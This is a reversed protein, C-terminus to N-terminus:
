KLLSIIAIIMVGILIINLAIPSLSLAFVVGLIAGLAGATAAAVATKQHYNGSRIMAYGGTLPSVSGLVLSMTLTSLPSLGLMLFIATWTAKMPIGFMNLVGTFFLIVVAIVLKSTPLTTADSMAGRSVIMRVILAVMSFMLAVAMIKRIKDGKVKKVLRVGLLSGIMASLGCFVLVTWHVVGEARLLSFAVISGPVLNAIVLTGPLEKDEATRLRRAVITNMVYDSIGSAGIFYVIAEAPLLWFFNGREARFREKNGFAKILILIGYAIGVVLIVIGLINQM